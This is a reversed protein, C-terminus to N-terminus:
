VPLVDAFWLAACLEVLMCVKDFSLGVIYVLYAIETVIELGFESRGLVGPIKGYQNNPGRHIEYAILTAHGNELRWGPRVHSRQCAEPPVGEPFVAETRKAQAIKDSTNFRGRRGEREKKPKKQGRTSTTYSHMRHCVGLFLDAKQRGNVRFTAFAKDSKGHKQVKQKSVPTV